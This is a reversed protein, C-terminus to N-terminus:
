KWPAGTAYTISRRHKKSHDCEDRRPSIMIVDPFDDPNFKPVMKPVDLNTPNDQKDREM